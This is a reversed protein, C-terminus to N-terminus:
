DNKTERLLITISAVGDRDVAYAYSGTESLLSTLSTPVQLGVDTSPRRLTLGLHRGSSVPSEDEGHGVDVEVNSITLAIPDAAGAPLTTAAERVAYAVLGLDISYDLVLPPKHLGIERGLAGRLEQLATEVAAVIQSGEVV